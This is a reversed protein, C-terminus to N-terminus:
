GGKASLLQQYNDYLAQWIMHPQFKELVRQRGAQGMKERLEPSTILLELAQALAQSDYPPVLIGTVGDAVAEVCGDVTTAVVPLQMAAAELPTNPFGERRTPLVLIDMATYLPTPDHCLGTFVVRPDKQLDQLIDPPVPDQPEIPGILLLYLEPYRRRLWQWAQALEVIGKDRVIRGVFGLVVANLPIQLRERAQARTEPPFRHPNFRETADVGNSSGNALVVIKEPPCVGAALATRRNAQSVAIVRDALACAIKESFILIQRKLGRATVFPLGRMGYVVVPVGALRAALTGLLGAKPTHAHVLDPKERRFISYLRWLSSLDALPTIQRQMPVAFVPIQERQATAALLPGPSSVAQVVFGQEQLFGIQGRFFTFTDPVTTIHILVIPRYKGLIEKM